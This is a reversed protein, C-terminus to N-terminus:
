AAPREKKARMGKKARIRRIATPSLLVAVLILAISGILIAPAIWAPSTQLAASFIRGIMTGTIGGFLAILWMVFLRKQSFHLLRNKSDRM